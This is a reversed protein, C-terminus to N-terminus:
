DYVVATKEPNIFCNWGKLHGLLFLHIMNPLELKYPTIHSRKIHSTIFQHYDAMLRPDYVTLVDSSLYLDCVHLDVVVV